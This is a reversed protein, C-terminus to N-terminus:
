AGVYDDYTVMPFFGVLSNGKSVGFEYAKIARDLLRENGTQMYVYLCALINM